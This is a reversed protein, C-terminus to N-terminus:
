VLWTLGIVVSLASREVRVTQQIESARTITGIHWM